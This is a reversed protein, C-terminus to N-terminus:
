EDRGGQPTEEEAVVFGKFPLRYFVSYLLPVVGLTLLTAFGLGFMISIAMSRWMPGGGFYLPLLGGITTATTLLIPRLRKQASEIIARRPPRDFERIEIEIRDLLVIANNIVIGALSIIGLFTMFGLAGDLLVLGIFVGILALPITLLIILPGKFHNFQTVLLLIIIALAIPVKAAIAKNAEESSEIEGGYEYFTGISWERSAPALEEELEGVVQAATVGEEVYASVTIAKLRDRRFIEAPQWQVELDAVQKLPVTRGTSQSFVDLTELKGLDQRDAEATRMVVPIVDEEERFETIEIGSLITQLSVAIDWSSVGARRARPQDVRVFLKKVWRGWDDVINKTGPIRALRAKVDDAIEFLEEQDKGSIRVEVPATVPPGYDLPLVVADVDPYNEFLWREMRPALEDVIERSTTTVLLKALEEKEPEVMASLTYRPSGVGIFGIWKLIGEDEADEQVLLEERMYRELDEVMALTVEFPTGVPHNLTARMLARESHPFFIVPLLRPLQMAALFIVVVVALSVWRWELIRILGARYRRYFPSDYTGHGVAKVKIFIVCLLPIMTLSLFWSSLLSITVVKFLHATYEGTSSEALFIPLFAAATTLSSTLLPVRLEKASDIAARIRETGQRMAVLIAESMVIANDVLLGLSIILAAISITNLSIDFAHMLAVSALMVMPILTAVVFGTRLGLFLLMLAMVIIVAQVLSRVFNQVNREVENPQFIVTDFEIGIPYVEQMRRIVANTQEGLRLINGGDRMSIGLALAPVGSSHVMSRRPEVTGRRVTAIDELYLLDGTAPHAIVTKRLEDISEFNGSPELAIRETGTNVNGGPFIINQSALIQQLQVPSLGLQALRANDYDLFIREEQAGYIDVKAVDSIRLLEDRVQDAVDELEAYTFGEGTVTYIIGFVDGFEDNVNPGIAGEPLEGTADAVKRRLNDFIPRMETYSEKFNAYIVSLGTQSESAIFDIEPIQQIVAEIPDTILNEIREPSAGPLFTTVVATRITFGPDEAQPMTRYAQLGAFAIVLLATFTVYRKEIARRTM